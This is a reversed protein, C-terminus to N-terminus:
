ELGIIVKNAWRPHNLWIRVRTARDPVDMELFADHTVNSIKVSRSPTELIGNFAAGSGPDVEQTHGVIIETPGDQEPYCAISICSSTSLIQKDKEWEPVVGGGRDSVFILSNVPRVLRSQM